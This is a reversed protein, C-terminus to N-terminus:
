SRARCGSAVQQEGHRRAACRRSRSRRRRGAARGRARSRGASRVRGVVRPPQDAGREATARRGPAISCAGSERPAIALLRRPQQGGARRARRDAHVDAASARDLLPGFRSERSTAARSSRAIARRRDHQGARRRIARLDIPGTPAAPRDRARDRRAVGIRVRRAATSSRSSRNTVPSVPGICRACATPVGTTATNPGDSGRAVRRAPRQSRTTRTSRGHLGHLRMRRGGARQTPWM